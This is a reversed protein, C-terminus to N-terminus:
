GGLIGGVGITRRRLFLYCPQRPGRDPERGAHRTPEEALKGPEWAPSERIAFQPVKGLHPFLNVQGHGGLGLCDGRGQCDDSQLHSPVEHPALALLLLSALQGGHGLSDPRWFGRLIANGCGVGIGAPDTLTTFSCHRCAWDALSGDANMRLATGCRGCVPKSWRKVAFEHGPLWVDGGHPAAILWAARALVDAPTRRDGCRPPQRTVAAIDAEGYWVGLVEYPHRDCEALLAPLDALDYRVMAYWPIPGDVVENVGHEAAWASYRATKGKPVMLKLM